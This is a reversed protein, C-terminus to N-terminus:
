KYMVCCCPGMLWCEVPGILETIVQKQCEINQCEINSGIMSNWKPHIPRADDVNFKDNMGCNWLIYDYNGGSECYGWWASISLM